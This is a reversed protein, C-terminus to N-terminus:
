LGDFNLRAIQHIFRFVLTAHMMYQIECNKEYSFFKCLFKVLLKEEHYVLYSKM